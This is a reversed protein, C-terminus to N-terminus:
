KRNNILNMIENAIVLASDAYALKSINAELKKKQVEDNALAIAQAVLTNMAEEDKILLAAEHNVLAMANKTQHDEAVNPSPVLISAKKVLCLESVSSAGARSVVVDAMVYAYDMKSIFDFVKIGGSAQLKVQDAAQNFFTKGTQWILQMGKKEMEV